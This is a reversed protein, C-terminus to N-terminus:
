GQCVSCGCIPGPSSPSYPATYISGGGGSIASAIGQDAMIGLVLGFTAALATLITAQAQKEDKTAAPVPTPRLTVRSQGGSNTVTRLALGKLAM